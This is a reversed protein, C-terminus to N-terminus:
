LLGKLRLLGFAAVTTADKIEGDRIMREVESLAFDRTVLNQEERELAANGHRLGTALFIHFGQNSYGCAEFLHGAYIMRGSELGTEKRLEGRAM